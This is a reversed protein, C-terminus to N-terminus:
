ILLEAQVFSSSTNEPITPVFGNENVFTIAVSIGNFVGNTPADVERFYRWM